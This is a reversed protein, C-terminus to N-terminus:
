KVNRKMKLHVHAVHNRMAHKQTFRASCHGCEYPREGTHTRIHHILIKNTSFGRGCVTCLKNKEKKVGEHNYKM